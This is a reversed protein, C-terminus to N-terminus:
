RGNIWGWAGYGYQMKEYSLYRFFGELDAEADETVVVSYDM